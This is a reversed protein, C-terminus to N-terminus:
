DYKKKGNVIRGTGKADYFKVGISRRDQRLESLYEKYAKRKQKELIRKEAQQETM